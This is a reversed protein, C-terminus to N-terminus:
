CCTYKYLDNSAFTLVCVFAAMM